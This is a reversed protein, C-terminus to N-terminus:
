GAAPEDGNEIVIIKPLGIMQLVNRAIEIIGVKNIRANADLCQSGATFEDLLSGVEKREIEASQDFGVKDEGSGCRKRAREPIFDASVVFAEGHIFVPFKQNPRRMLAFNPAQIGVAGNRPGESAINVQALVRRVLGVFTHATAGGQLPFVPMQSILPDTIEIDTQQCLPPPLVMEINQSCSLLDM